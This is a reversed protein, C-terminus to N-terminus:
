TTVFTALNLRSNGDLALEDHIINYAASPQLGEVPLHYKPVNGRMIRSGYTPQILSFDGMQESSKKAFM